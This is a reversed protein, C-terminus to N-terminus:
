ASICNEPLLKLGAASKRFQHQKLLSDIEHITEASASKILEIIEERLLEDPSGTKPVDFAILGRMLAIGALRAQKDAHKQYHETMTKSFHGVISQVIPLPVGRLGAYYCFCHRLSHFGKLCVKKIRGPVEKHTKIGTQHLYRMIRNNLANQRSRYLRAAEPVIFEEQGSIPYQQKLFNNLELEIPVYVVTKTKGTLRIIERHLFDPRKENADFDEIESWRLTAVDGLRLGTCIGITFLDNILKPPNEFILRLEEDSFIEKSVPKLKLPYIFYFPNEELSYGLDPGLFSFVAKCTSLYRNLTTNSLLGGYDYDKFKKRSPCREKDYMIKTCYRGNKRIYAIYAEAHAREVEDLTNLQYKDKVFYVFDEWYRRTVKLIRASATRTHPKQLHLEFANDLTITLRAKLKKLKAKEELYDERSEIEKIKNLNEIYEKAKALADRESTIKVGNEDRLVIAKRKGGLSYQLYYAGGNKFVSGQGNSRKKKQAM